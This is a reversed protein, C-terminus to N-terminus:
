KKGFRYLVGGSLSFFERTETGYREFILDPQIRLALRKSRNFDVSGGVAFM